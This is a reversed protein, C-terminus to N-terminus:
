RVYMYVSLDESSPKSIQEPEWGEIPFTYTIVRTGSKLEKELKTKLRGRMTEQLGYLYIIDADSVNQSYLSDLVFSISYKSNFYKRVQCILWMVPSLEVGIAQAGQKSAEIVVRGDGCGLDYFKDGPKLNIMAFIRDMDKNKSPVWPAFSFLAFAGTWFFMLALLLIIVLGIIEFIFGM